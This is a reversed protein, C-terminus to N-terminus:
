GVLRHRDLYALRSALVPPKHDSRHVQRREPEASQDPQEQVWAELAGDVEDSMIALVRGDVPFGVLANEEAVPHVVEPDAEIVRDIRPVEQEILETHWVRFFADGRDRPKDFLDPALGTMSQAIIEYRDKASLRIAQRTLGRDERCVFQHCRDPNRHDVM